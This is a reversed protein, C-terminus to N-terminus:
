LVVYSVYPDFPFRRIELNALGLTSEVALTEGPFIGANLEDFAIVAGRPMRPRFVDIMAKTPDFLDLDLYLLAVVLHPNAALYNAATERVDGQVLDVKPIHSIPRNLDFVSVAREVEELSSGSLGGIRTLSSAAGSRLDSESVDPFGSFTDFGIVRRTHNTPELIASLKAWALTGSGHLVGGEVISGNVHLIRRFIEYKTLFKALSQRTAYKPFGDIRDILADQSTDFLEVVARFQESDSLSQNHPERAPMDPTM